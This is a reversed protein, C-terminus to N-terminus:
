IINLGTPKSGVINGNHATRKLWNFWSGKNM